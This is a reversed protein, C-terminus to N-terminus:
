FNPLIIPYTSDTPRRPNALGERLARTAIEKEDTSWDSVPLFRGYKYMTVFPETDPMASDAVHVLLDYIQFLFRRAIM